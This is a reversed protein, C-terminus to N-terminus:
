RAGRQQSQLGQSAKSLLRVLQTRERETDLAELFRGALM